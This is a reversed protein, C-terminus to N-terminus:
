WIEEFDIFAKCNDFNFETKIDRGAHALTYKGNELVYVEVEETIPSIIIYYPIKQAQYIYFKTHRDKLATSPSLVECVLVPPFDLYKKNIVDECVIVLDPELVTDEKIYYDITQTALCRQCNKLENWFLANLNSVIIQHKFIPSPAMAYAIGDIIEWRGEWSKLDDYTYYPLIREIASM